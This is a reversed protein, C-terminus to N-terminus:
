RAGASSAARQKMVRAIEEASLSYTGPDNLLDYVFSVQLHFSMGRKTSFHWTNIGVVRGDEDFLPGGSNGPNIDVNSQLFRGEIDKDTRNAGAIIGNTITRELVEGGDPRGPHGIAAVPTAPRPLYSPPAVRVPEIGWKKLDAAAPTVGADLRRSFPSSGCANRGATRSNLLIAHCM